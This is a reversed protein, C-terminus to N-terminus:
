LMNTQLAQKIASLEIDGVNLWTMAYTWIGMKKSCWIIMGYTYFAM